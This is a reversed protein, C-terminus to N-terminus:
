NRTTKNKIANFKCIEISGTDTSVLITAPDINKLQQGITAHVHHHMDKFTQENLLITQPTTTVFLQSSIKGHQTDAQLEANIEQPVALIINGSQSHLNLTHNSQMTKRQVTINSSTTRAIVTNTGEEVWIAGRTSHLELPGSVNNITIPSDTTTVKIPLDKPALVHLSVTGCGTTEKIITSVQITHNNDHTKLETNQLFLDNGKKKMEILVCPQKWTQITIPGHDSSIELKAPNNFEKHVMEEKNKKFVSCVKSSIKSISNKTQIPITFSLLLLAAHKIFCNKM